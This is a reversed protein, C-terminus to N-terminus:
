PQIEYSFQASAGAGGNGATFTVTYTCTGAALGEIEFWGFEHVAEDRADGDRVECIEPTDSVVTKTTDAQCVRTGGATPHVYFANTDGVDIDELVFAIPEAVGDVSAADVIEMTLAGDDIESALSVTGAATTDFVMWTQDSDEAVLAAGTGSAAVPYYGYGITSQGNAMELDFPVYVRQGALYAAVGDAATCTHWLKLVEPTRALLNIEDPLAEGSATEAEVSLVAGGDAVARVTVTDGAFGDVAVIGDDDTSAATITVPAHTGAEAVTVDLSAGVAIPKNFDVADDDTWYAFELNGLNGTSRSQCGVLAALVLLHRM